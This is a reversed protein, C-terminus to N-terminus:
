EPLDKGTRLMRLALLVARRIADGGETRYTEREVRVADQTVLAVVVEQTGAEREVLVAGLASEAQFTTRAREALARAGRELDDRLEGELPVMLGGATGATGLARCLAGGLGAEALAPRRGEEALLRATSSSLDEDDVGYINRGFIARIRAETRALQRRAAESDRSRAALRVHIGDQKAYTAVTPNTGRVLDGLDQEVASEGLGLIKLTRTVIAGGRPLDLLRPVVQEEWMRRMETPVGPMAAIHRSGRTVWWGPATGIPNPLVTASAIRTAQKVNREPMPRSRRAFYARLREELEPVVQLDEGLLDAIAERTV